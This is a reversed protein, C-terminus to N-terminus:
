TLRGSFIGLCKIASITPDLRGNGICCELFKKESENLLPLVQNKLYGRKEQAGEEFLGEVGKMSLIMWVGILGFSWLDAQFCIRVEDSGLNLQADDNQLLPDVFIDNGLDATLSFDRRLSPKKHLKEAHPIKSHQSLHPEEKDGNENGSVEKSVSCSAVPIAVMLREIQEPRKLSTDLPPTDAKPTLGVTLVGSAVNLISM